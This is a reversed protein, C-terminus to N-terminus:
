IEKGIISLEKPSYKGIYKRKCEPCPSTIQNETIWCKRKGCKCTFEQSTGNAMGM